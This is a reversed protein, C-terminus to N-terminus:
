KASKKAAAKTTGGLAEKEIIIYKSNLIDLINLNKFASFEINPINQFARKKSADAFVLIKSKTSVGKEVADLNKLIVQAEKTKPQTLSIKDVFIIEKERLKQSLVMAFALKAQKKNIDRSYNKDNRPGFTTGGGIWIPSRTSGVRARGTGKQRWPKKGGGRVEGRTKTHAVNERQNMQYVRTVQYVVDNKFPVDFLADSLEVEGVNKGVQNYLTTKM